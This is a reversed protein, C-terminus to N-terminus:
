RESELFESLIEDARDHLPSLDIASIGDISLNFLARDVDLRVIGSYENDGTPSETFVAKVVLIEEGNEVPRAYRISFDTSGWGSSPFAGITSAFWKALDPESVEVGYSFLVGVRDYNSVKLGAESIRFFEHARENFSSASEPPTETYVSQYGNVSARFGGDDPAHLVTEMMGIPGPEFYVTGYHDKIQQALAGKQDVYIPASRRLEVVAQRVVKSSDRRQLKKKSRAM